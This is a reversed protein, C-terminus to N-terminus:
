FIYVGSAGGVLLATVICVSRHLAGYMNQRGGGGRPSETTLCVVLGNHGANQNLVALTLLGNMKSYGMFIESPTQM